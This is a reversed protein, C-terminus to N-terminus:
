LTSLLRVGLNLCEGPPLLPGPAGIAPRSPLDSVARRRIKANRSVPVKGVALDAVVHNASQICADAQASACQQQKPQVFSASPLEPVPPRSLHDGSDLSGKSM